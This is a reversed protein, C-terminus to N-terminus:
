AVRAVPKFEVQVTDFRGKTKSLLAIDYGDCYYTATKTTDTEPDYFTVGFYDQKLKPLLSTMDAQLLEGGFEVDLVVDTGLLTARMDGAMNRSSDKWVKNYRVEYSKCSPLTEGDIQILSGSIM